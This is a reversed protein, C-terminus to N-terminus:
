RGGRWSGAGLQGPRGAGGSGRGRGPPEPTRERRQPQGAPGRGKKGERPLWPSLPPGPNPQTSASHSLGRTRATSAGRRGHGSPACCIPLHRHGPPPPPCARWRSKPQRCITCSHSSHVLPLTWLARRPQELAKRAWCGGRLWLDGSCRPLQHPESSKEGGRAERWAASPPLRPSACCNQQAEALMENPNKSCQDGPGHIQPKIATYGLNNIMACSEQCTQNQM